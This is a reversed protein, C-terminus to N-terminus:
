KEHNKLWFKTARDKCIVSLPVRELEGYVAYTPTQKKVGLIYKCFKIHLKDVHKYNYVGWVECGYTLIPVIISDFLSLKTKIDLSVKDFVNLLNNYARLAQDHLAKVANVM